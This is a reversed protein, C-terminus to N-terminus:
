QAALLEGKLPATSARAVAHAALCERYLSEVQRAIGEWAFLQRVAVPGAASMASRAADDGLIRAIATALADGEGRVVLGSGTQRITAALGVEETVVVPCGVAMAEIASMGFNENYSPMALCTAGRILSWKEAGEVPGVFHTRAAIGCEEALKAVRAEYGLEDYGAIVLRAGPVKAMAPILRDLGKKWSIRGLFLVYRDESSSAGSAPSVADQWLSSAARRQINPTGILKEADFRTRNLAPQDLADPPLDIGNPIVVLRRPNLGLAAVDAAESEATVHVAAAGAVTRRDFLCLWLRKAFGSKRRILDAVLMGRPCLIYPVGARRAASAAVVNPWTWVYHIHVIDFSGVTARLARSLEASRSIRRGIGIPFYWVKVSDREVPVGLPVDSVSAGDMNTTYVHVDHGLAATAAAVGHVSRIPGGYRVAPYYHPIVHLIRVAISV